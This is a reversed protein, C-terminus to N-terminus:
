LLNFKLIEKPQGPTLDQQIKLGALSEKPLGPTLVEQNKKNYILKFKLIEKPQRSTLSKNNM